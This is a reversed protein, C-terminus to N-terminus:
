LNGRLDAGMRQQWAHMFKVLQWRKTANWRTATVTEKADRSKQATGTTSSARDTSAQKSKARQQSTQLAEQNTPTETVKVQDDGCGSLLLVGSFLVGWGKRM